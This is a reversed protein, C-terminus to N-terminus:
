LDDSFPLSFPSLSLRFFSSLCPILFLPAGNQGERERGEQIQQAAPLVQQETLQPWPLPSLLSITDPPLPSPSFLFYPYDTTAEM